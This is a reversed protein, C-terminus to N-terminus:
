FDQVVYRLIVVLNNYTSEYIRPYPYFLIGELFSFTKVALIVLM